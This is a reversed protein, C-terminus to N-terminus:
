VMQITQLQEYDTIHKQLDQEYNYTEGLIRHIEDMNEIMWKSAFYNADIERWKSSYPISEKEDRQSEQKNKEPLHHKQYVHRIEHYLNLVFNLSPFPNGEKFINFGYLVIEEKHQNYIYSGATGGSKVAEVYEETMELLIYRSAQEFDKYITINMKMNKVDEELLYILKQIIEESIHDCFNLINIHNNKGLEEDCKKTFFKTFINKEKIPVSQYLPNQKKQYAEYRQIAMELEKDEFSYPIQLINQIKRKNEIMWKSAFYNADIECWRDEYSIGIEKNRKGEMVFKDSLYKTQYLHRLEHYLNFTFDLYTFENKENFMTFSYMVIYDYKRILSARIENNKVANKYEESLHRPLQKLAMDKDNFVSIIGELEQVEKPLLRILKKIQEESIEPCRNTIHLNLIRMYKGENRKQKCSYLFIKSFIGKKLQNQNM